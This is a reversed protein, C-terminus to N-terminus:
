AREPDMRFTWAEVRMGAVSAAEEESSCEAEAMDWWANFRDDNMHDFEEQSPPNSASPPEPFTHTM